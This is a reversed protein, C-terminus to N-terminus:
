GETHAGFQLQEAGVQELAWASGLVSESVRGAEAGLVAASYSHTGEFRQQKKLM